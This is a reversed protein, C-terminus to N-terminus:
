GENGLSIAILPVRYDGRGESTFELLSDDLVLTPFDSDAYTGMGPRAYRKERLATISYSVDRLRKGYYIHEAHGTELIHIVYSTSDTALHFISDSLVEIM